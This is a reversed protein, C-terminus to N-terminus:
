PAAPRRWVWLRNVAYFALTYVAMAGIQALAPHLGLGILAHLTGLNLAYALAFGLAFRLVAGASLRAGRFVFWRNLLLSQLLGLAYSVANATGPAASLWGWLLLFVGYGLATNALGALVFRAFEATRPSAEAV